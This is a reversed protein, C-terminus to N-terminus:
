EAKEAEANNPLEGMVEADEPLEDVVEVTIEPEEKTDAGAKIRDTVCKYLVKLQQNANAIPIGIQEMLAVPVSIQDLTNIVNALLEIDTM